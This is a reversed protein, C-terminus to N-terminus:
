RSVAGKSGYPPDAEFGGVGPLHSCGGPVTRYPPDAEFGGEVSHNKYPPNAEFGGDCLQAGSNGLQYFLHCDEGRLRIPRLVFRGNLTGISEFSWADASQELRALKGSMLMAHNRGARPSLQRRAVFRRGAALAAQDFAVIDFALRPEAGSRIGSRSGVTLLAHDGDVSIECAQVIRESSVAPRYLYAITGTSFALTAVEEEPWIEVGDRTMIEHAARDIEDHEVLRYPIARVDLRSKTNAPPLAVVGQHPFVNFVLRSVEDPRGSLHDQLQALSCREKGRYGVLMGYVPFEPRFGRPQYHHAPTEIPTGDLSSMQLQGDSMKATLPLGDYHPVILYRESPQIQSLNDISTLHRFPTAEANLDKSVLTDPVAGRYVLSTELVKEIQRYNFHCKEKVSNRDYTEFIQHECRRIDKGCISCEPLRFTFAVSCEKYIGGDINDKLQEAGDSSRLWYFYSKVWPRQDREITVAHFNRGVPLKDKRHGVLVPSDVLLRAVAAHEDVPFRGGFSNVQDSVVYMARIYVDAASVKAPPRINLNILDILEAPVDEDTEALQAIVRGYSATM